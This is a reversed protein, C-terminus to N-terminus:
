KAANVNGVETNGIPPKFNCFNGKGSELTGKTTQVLMNNKTEVGLGQGVFLLGAAITLSTKM